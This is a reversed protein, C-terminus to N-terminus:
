PTVLSVDFIPLDYIDDCFSGAWGVVGGQEGFLRGPGEMAGDSGM